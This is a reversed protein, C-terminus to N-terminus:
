LIGAQKNAESARGQAASIQVDKDKLDAALQQDKAHILVAQAQSLENGRKNVMWQAFFYLATAVLSAAILRVSWTNWLGHKETLEQVRSTLAQIDSAKDGESVMQMIIMM